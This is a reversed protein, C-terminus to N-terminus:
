RRLLIRRTVAGDPTEVKLVYVGDPEASIDVPVFGEKFADFRRSYVSRTSDQSLVSLVFDTPVNFFLDVDFTGTNRPPFPQVIPLSTDATRATSNTGTVFWHDIRSGFDSLFAKILRGDQDLLRVFGRGGGTNFWFDLGDGATDDVILRYCGEPLRLTERYVTAIAAAPPVREHIVDGAADTVRYSTQGTDNNTRVTLIMEPPYVPVPATKSVARNDAPYDDVAGNPQELQVFFELATDAIPIPGPLHVSILEQPALGGTWVFEREDIDRVGYRVSVSEVSAAGNNKMLFVPQGCAPNNRSYEDRDGPVVIDEISVDHAAWPASFYFLFSHIFWNASPKGPNIYPEMAIDIVHSELREIPLDYIDPYVVAGPCWNARDFIWTGAQPYLPNDGCERWLFRQNVLSDDFLVQRWKRCFEACNASDDMGHGTQHIRLRTFQTGPPPAFKVPALLHEIDHASDGYPFSGCWLTDMGLCTMAPRGHTIEFVLTVLWGRDTDSEYGTHVFEIEVSDHLLLAFDTVDTQWTFQWDAGFRWGYPSIMRALEIYQAASTDSGARRLRIQDIYDWEGCHLSDPCAYTIWLTVKRYEVSDPPFVVERLYSNTGDSPDTVVLVRDHSIVHTITSDDASPSSVAAHFIVVFACGIRAATLLTGKM